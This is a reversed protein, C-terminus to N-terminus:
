RLQRRVQGGLIADPRPTPDIGAAKLSLGDRHMQSPSVRWDEHYSGFMHDWVAFVVAYNVRGGGKCHHLKHAHNDIFLHRLRGLNLTYNLHDTVQFMLVLAYAILTDVLGAGLLVAILALPIQFSSVATDIFSAVNGRLFDLHSVTHHRAHVRRCWRLFPHRGRGHYLWRHIAYYAFDDLALLVLVASWGSWVESDPWVTTGLWWVGAVLAGGIGIGQVFAVVLGFAIAGRDPPEICAAPRHHELLYVALLTVASLAMFGLLLNPLTRGAVALWAVLATPPGLHVLLGIGIGNRDEPQLDTPIRPHM